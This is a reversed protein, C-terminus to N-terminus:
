KSFAVSCLHLRRRAGRSFSLPPVRQPSLTVRVPHLNAGDSEGCPAADAKAYHLGM